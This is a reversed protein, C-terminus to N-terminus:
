DVRFVGERRTLLFVGERLPVNTWASCAGERLADTLWPAGACRLYLEFSHKECRYFM